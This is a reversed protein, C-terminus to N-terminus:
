ESHQQYNDVNKMSFISTHAAVLRRALVHQYDLLLLLLEYDDAHQAAAEESSTDTFDADRVAEMCLAAYQLM